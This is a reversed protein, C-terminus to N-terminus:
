KFLSMSKTGSGILISSFGSDVYHPPRATSDDIDGSMPGDVGQDVPSMPVEQICCAVYPKSVQLM